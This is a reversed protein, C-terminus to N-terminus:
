RLDVDLIGVCKGPRPTIEIKLGQCVLKSAPHVVNYTDAETGFTDTIYKDFPRWHGDKLYSLRWEAPVEVGNDRDSVWYVGFREVSQAKNFTLQVWQAEGPHGASTWRPLDKEDSSQPRHGDSLAAVTDGSACYSASVAGYSEADFRGAEMDPRARERDRPIWVIMSANGRNNWAFYPVLRMEADQLGSATIESAPIAVQVMGDLASGEMTRTPCRTHEPLEPLCFRQVRGNNDAEEACYVLPGRTVAIRGRNAEVREDCVNFRVPMPLVLEVEDRDAWNRRVEAFGKSLPAEVRKGNVAVTWQDENALAYRYLTGPLFRERAWTPIRLKLAFEAPEKLSLRLRIRGDFPYDSHQELKVRGYKLEVAASSSGYLLLFIEDNSSAYMYGGVQTLLRAINSPCCACGFWPARGASGHNFFRQGDTELPNVYFFRDGSLSVGALANNLLAVEAVDFCSADRHLLFMRYNFFVNAIAACTELYAEQNPLDFEPGFGEIGHIAGLGGTIHMRTDVINHWIRSLAGNYCANGTLTGVEAMAAYMYAARVAHGVAQEQEAVPRHQQAYEPSLTGQGEPRYTVGRIDLFRKAMKLYLPDGTVRHLKCLALEIEQHGPAQNVPKGDHYNPDGEFSVRHIHRASKEAVDLFNRKGTALYYACAAEYLHGM